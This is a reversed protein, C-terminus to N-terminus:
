IYIICKRPPETSFFGGSIYSVHTLDSIPSSARSFSIAVWELIRAQSIGHVSYGPPSRDVPDFFLWVHSLLYVVVFFYIFCIVLLSRACPLIGFTKCSDLFSYIYVCVCLHIVSNSQQVRFSVCCQSDVINWCFSIFWYIRSKKLFIM